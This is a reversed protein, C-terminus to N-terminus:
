VDDSLTAALRDHLAISSGLYCRIQDQLPVGLIGRQAAGNSSM